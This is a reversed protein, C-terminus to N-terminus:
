SPEDERGKAEDKNELIERWIRFVIWGIIGIIIGYVYNM